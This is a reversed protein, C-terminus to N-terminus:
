LAGLVRLFTGACAGGGLSMTRLAYDAVAASACLAILVCLFSRMVSM